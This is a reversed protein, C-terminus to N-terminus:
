LTLPKNDIYEILRCAECFYCLCRTKAPWFVCGNGSKFDYRVLAKLTDVLKDASENIRDARTKASM